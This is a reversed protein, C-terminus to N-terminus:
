HALYASKLKPRDKVLTQLLVPPGLCCPTLAGSDSTTIPSEARAPQSCTPNSYVPHSKGRSATHAREKGCLEEGNVCNSDSARDNIM